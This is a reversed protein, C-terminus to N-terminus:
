EVNLYILDTYEDSEEIFISDDLSITGCETQLRIEYDSFEKNEKYLSNIKNVYDEFTM